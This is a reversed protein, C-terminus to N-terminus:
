SLAGLHGDRKGGLKFPEDIFPNGVALEVVDLVDERRGQLPQARARSRFGVARSGLSLVDPLRDLSDALQAIAHREPRAHRNPLENFFPAAISGIREPRM